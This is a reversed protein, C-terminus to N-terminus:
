NGKTATKAWAPGPLRYLQELFQRPEPRSPDLALARLWHREAEARHEQALYVRGAAIYFGTVLGRVEAPDIKEERRGVKTMLDFAELDKEKWRVYAERHQQAEQPRGLRMLAQALGYHANSLDPQNALLAEYHRVAQQYDQSQLYAQGLMLQAWPPLPASQGAAQLLLVTENAAGLNMLSDALIFIKGKALAPNLTALQRMRDAAEQFNGQEWAHEALGLWAQGSAPCLQIAREWRQIAPGAQGFRFAAEASITLADAQDPLAAALRDALTQVEAILQDTTAEAAAAPIQVASATADGTQSETGASTVEPPRTLREVALVTLSLCVAVGLWLLVPRVRRASSPVPATSGANRRGRHTKTRAM